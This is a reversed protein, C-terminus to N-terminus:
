NKFFKVNKLLIKKNFQACFNGSDNRESKENLQM